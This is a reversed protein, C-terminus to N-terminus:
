RRLARLVAEAEMQDAIRTLERAAVERSLWPRASITLELEEGGVVRVLRWAQGGGPADVLEVEGAAEAGPPYPGGPAHGDQISAIAGQPLELAQELSAVNVPNVGVTGQARIKRLTEPSIQARRAVERWSLRLRLRQQDIAQEVPSAYPSRPTSTM